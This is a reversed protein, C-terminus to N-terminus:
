YDLRMIVEEPNETLYAVACKHTCFDLYGGDIDIIRYKMLKCKKCYGCEDYEKKM